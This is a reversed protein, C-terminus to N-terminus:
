VYADDLGFHFKFSEHHSEFPIEEAAFMLSLWAQVNYMHCDNERIKYGHQRVDLPSGVLM